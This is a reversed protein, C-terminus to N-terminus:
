RLHLDCFRRVRKLVDVLHAREAFLHEERPYVVFECPWDLELCGRHFAIAQTLPVRKDEEGHLILVPTKEDNKKQLMHWVASGHRGKVDDSSTQWPAKGTLEAEFWPYDSTMCLMDWDTVGAGCIAGKFKFDDRVASLYSLFGGQSWGAVVVEEPHVLHLGAHKSTLSQLQVLPLVPRHIPPELMKTFPTTLVRDAVDGSDNMHSTTSNRM